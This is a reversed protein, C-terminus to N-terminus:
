CGCDCGSGTILPKLGTYTPGVWGGEGLGAGYSAEGGTVRGHPSDGTYASGGVSEGLGVNFNRNSLPM